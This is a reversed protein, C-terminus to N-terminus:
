FRGSSVASMFQVKSDISMLALQKKLKNIFEMTRKKETMTLTTPLLLLFFKARICVVVSFINKDKDFRGSKLESWKSWKITKDDNRRKFRFFTELLKTKNLKFPSTRPFICCCFFLVLQFPLFCFENSIMSFVSKQEINKLIKVWFSYVFFFCWSLLKPKICLMTRITSIVYYFRLMRYQIQPLYIKWHWLIKNPSFIGM